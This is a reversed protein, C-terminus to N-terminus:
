RRHRPLRLPASLTVPTWGDPLTLVVRARAHFPARFTASSHRDLRRRKVPYWGFRERLQLQLRVIAGPDSPVARVRVIAHRNRRGAHVVLRRDMVAVQVDPSAGAAAVARYTASAVAPLEVHFGGSGDVTATAVAAFGAGDDRQIEVNSTGTEARGDLKVTGGRSVADKPGQLLLPYVDVEGTMLPHVQCVYPFGGAQAFQYSYGGNPRIHGPSGFSGDRASVTHDRFSVNRWAVTDGVLVTLQSPTFAAQQMTVQETQASAAGPLALAAAAAPACLWLLARGSM